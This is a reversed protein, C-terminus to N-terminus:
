CKLNVALSYVPDSPGVYSRVVTNRCHMLIEVIEMGDSNACQGAKLGKLKGSMFSHLIQCISSGVCLCVVTHRQHVMCQPM